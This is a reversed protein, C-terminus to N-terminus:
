ETIRLIERDIDRRNYLWADVGKKMPNQKCKIRGNMAWRKFSHREYGTYEAAESTTLWIKNPHMVRKKSNIKEISYEQLLEPRLCHKLLTFLNDATIDLQNM